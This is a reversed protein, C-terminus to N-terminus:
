SPRRNGESEGVNLRACAQQTSVRDFFTEVQRDGPGSDPLVVDGASLIGTALPVEPLGLSRGLESRRFTRTSAWDHLINRFKWIYASISGPAFAAAEILCSTERPHAVGVGDFAM